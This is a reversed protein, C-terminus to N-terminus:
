IEEVSLNIFKTSGDLFEELGYKLKKASSELDKSNCKITIDMDNELIIDFSDGYFRVDKLSRRAQNVKQPRDWVQLSDCFMCFYAFPNDQLKHKFNKNFLGNFTEPYLNHIMISYIIDNIITKYKQVLMENYSNSDISYAYLVLKLGDPSDDGEIGTIISTYKLFMELIVNASILGHDFKSHGPRYDNCNKLTKGYVNLKKLETVLYVDFFNKTIDSLYSDDYFKYTVRLDDDIIKKNLRKEEQTNLFTELDNHIIRIIKAFSAEFKSNENLASTAQKEIKGKFSSSEIKKNVKSLLEDRILAIFGDEPEVELKIYGISDVYKGMTEKIQEKIIKTAMENKASSDVWKNLYASFNDGVNYLTSLEKYIYFILNAISTESTITSFEFGFKEQINKCIINLDKEYNKIESCCLSAKFKAKINNAYYECRHNELPFEQSGMKLSNNLQELTFTACERHKYICSRHQGEQFNIIIPEDNDNYIVVVIDNVDIAPLLYKLGEYGYIHALKIYSKYKKVKQLVEDLRVESSSSNLYHFESYELHNKLSILDILEQFKQTSNSIMINCFIIKSFIKLSLIYAIYDTTKELNKFFSKYDNSSLKGEKDVLAEFIYGLDHTICFYKWCIIFNKITSQSEYEDSVLRKSRFFSYLQKHFVKHYFFLYIGLLYLNVIHVFHDQAVFQNEGVSLEKTELDLLNEFFVEPISFNSDFNIRDIIRKALDTREEESTTKLFDIYLTNDPFIRDYYQLFLKAQFKPNPNLFLNELLTVRINKKM